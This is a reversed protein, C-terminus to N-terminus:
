IYPLFNTDEGGSFSRLMQLPIGKELFLNATISGNSSLDNGGKRKVNLASLILSCAVNKWLSEVDHWRSAPFHQLQQYQDESFVM